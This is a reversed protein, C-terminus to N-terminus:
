TLPARYDYESRRRRGVTVHLYRGRPTVTLTSGSLGTTAVSTNSSTADEYTLTDGDDDSCHDNLNLTVASGGATLTQNPINCVPPRNSVTVTFTPSVKDEGDNATVTVTASGKAVPTVTLTSGSLGTTAVSTNSSTADEYTLTDGDDDSCHDNLNLTVASGGATLTQNPINCVPPRNSVTVTFTPSVKDEGDNATVTVTASGKAVPTVTLTSGSLGTTAVSTNSSTADEYTLTDGDDDSCHDNLNLTVASGGATLTQNPINCVPPRNSVTVTFTPSVKDEGDNATVTVTASGKAVPTVTLTSNSLGTTAVSTNSSTADEYTLTDGDDDSCHDNLNLTVASGGATLTQDPIDCEPPDNDTVTVAVSQSVDDEGDDATVTVTTRGAAVPAITLTSGSVSARVIGSPSVSVTYTLPYGDPDSCYDNLDFTASSGGVALTQDPIDCVPPHAISLNISAFVTDKPTARDIVRVILTASNDSTEIAIKLSETTSVGPSFTYSCDTGLCQMSTYSWYYEYPSTGGSAMAEWTYETGSVISTPGTTIEVELPPPPTGGIVEATFVQEKSEGNLTATVTVDASGVAEPSITLTAGSISTTVISANSSSARYTVVVDPVLSMFYQSVDLTVSSGGETLTQTPIHGVTKLSEPQTVTVIHTSSVSVEPDASDTATVEIRVRTGTTTVTRTLTSGSGANTWRWACPEDGIPNGNLCRTAYRWSYTYSPVGDSAVAEWTGSGGSEISAPGTIEVALPPVTTSVEVGFKQAASLGELDTATVTVRGAGASVPTITLTSDNELFRTTVSSPGSVTYRLTDGDPDEFYPSVDFSEPSGGLSFTRDSIAGVPRPPRNGGEEGTVRVYFYQRPIETVPEEWALAVIEARGASLGTITLAGDSMSASALDQDLSAGAYDLPDNNCDEFYESVDIVLSVGAAVTTDPIAGKAEPVCNGITADFSQTVRLGGRDTATVTVTTAGKSVATLTLTSDTISTNVIGARSLGATYTLVSDQLDPDTFYRSAVFRIPSTKQTFTTDPIAGEAVPPSNTTSGVFSANPDVEVTLTRTEDAMGNASATVQITATGASRATVTLMSGCVDDVTAVAEHLSRASYTVASGSMTFWSRVSFRVFSSNPGIRKDPTNGRAVPTAGPLSVPSFFRVIDDPAAAGCKEARASAGNFHITGLAFALVLACRAPMTFGVM